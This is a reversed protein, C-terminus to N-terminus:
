GNWEYIRRGGRRLNWSTADTRQAIPIGGVGVERDIDNRFRQKVESRRDLPVRGRANVDREERM